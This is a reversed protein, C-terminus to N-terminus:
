DELGAEIELATAVLDDKLSALNDHQDVYSCLADQLSTERRVITTRRREVPDVAREIAAVCDAGRLADRIAAVDILASERETVRYRVRVVADAVREAEIAGVITGTPDDSGRADVEIPVFRRAPTPVFEYRTSKAGASDIDVLM